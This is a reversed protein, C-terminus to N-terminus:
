RISARRATCAPTSCSSARRHAMLFSLVPVTWPQGPTLDSVMSARDLEILGTCFAYVNIVTV